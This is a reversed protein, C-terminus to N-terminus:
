SALLELLRRFRHKLEDLSDREAAERLAKIADPTNIDALAVASAYRRRPSAHTRLQNTLLRIRGKLTLPDNVIGLRRLVEAAVEDGVLSSGLATAIAHLGASGHGAIVESVEHGLDSDTGSEFVENEGGRELALEVRKLLMGSEPTLSSSMLDALQSSFGSVYPDSSHVSRARSLDINRQANESVRAIRGRGWRAVDTELGEGSRLAMTTRALGSSALGSSAKIPLNVINAGAIQAGSLGTLAALPEVPGGQREPTPAPPTQVREALGIM